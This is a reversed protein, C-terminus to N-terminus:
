ILINSSSHPPSAYGCGCGCGSTSWSLPIYSHLSQAIPLSFDYVSDLNLGYLSENEEGLVRKELSVGALCCYLIGAAIDQNTTRLSKGKTNKTCSDRSVIIWDKDLPEVLICSSTSQGNHHDELM